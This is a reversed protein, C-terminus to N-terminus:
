EVAPAPETDLVAHKEKSFWVLYVLELIGLTNVLLLIIFWNKHGNRASKWLAVGKIALTWILILAIIPIAVLGFSQLFSVSSDTYNMSALIAM